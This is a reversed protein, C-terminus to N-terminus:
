ERSRIGGGEGRRVIEGAEPEEMEPLLHGLLSGDEGLASPALHPSRGSSLRAVGGVADAPSQAGPAAASAHDAVRSPHRPHRRGRLSTGFAPSTTTTSAFARVWVTKSTLSRM